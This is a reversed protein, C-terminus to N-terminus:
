VEGAMAALAREAHEVMDATCALRHYIGDEDTRREDVIDQLAKEVSALRAALAELEDAAKQMTPIMHALPM